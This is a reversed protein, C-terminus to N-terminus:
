GKIKVVSYFAFLLAPMLVLLYYWIFTIVYWSFKITLTKVSGLNYVEPHETQFLEYDVPEHNEECKRLVDAYKASLDRVTKNNIKKTKKGQLAEYLDSIEVACKHLRESRLLYNESGELISLVLICLSLLISLFAPFDKIGGTVVFLQYNQSLTIAITYVSLFSITRLSWISKNRLRRSANFRAGKTKWM